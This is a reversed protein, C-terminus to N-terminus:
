FVDELIKQRRKAIQQQEALIKEKVKEEGGLQEIVQHDVENEASTITEIFQKFHDRHQYAHEILVYFTDGEANLLKLYHMTLIEILRVHAKELDPSYLKLSELWTRINDNLDTSISAKNKGQMEAVAADLALKRPFMFYKTYQKIASGRRLFDIIFFGPIFYYWATLQSTVIVGLTVERAFQQEANKIIDYKDM